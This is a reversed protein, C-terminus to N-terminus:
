LSDSLDPISQLGSFFAGIREIRRTVLIIGRIMSSCDYTEDRRKMAFDLRKKRRGKKVLAGCDVLVLEVEFM